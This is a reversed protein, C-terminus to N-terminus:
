IIFQAQFSVKNKHSLIMPQSQYRNEGNTDFPFNAVLWGGHLHASLVFPYELTWKMVAAVEPERQSQEISPDFQDPFNRNLDVNHANGRDNSCFKAAFSKKM